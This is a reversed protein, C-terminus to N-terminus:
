SQKPLLPIGSPLTFLDPKLPANISVREDYIEAIKETDRERQLGMPWTIGGGAERYKTFRTIEEFKDRTAEDRRYWRQRVPLHTNANV